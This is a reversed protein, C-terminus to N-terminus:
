GLSMFRAQAFLGQLAPTRHLEPAAVPARHDYMEKLLVLILARTAEPVANRAGYGAVYTVTVAQEIARTAPWSVGYAREIRGKRTAVGANLVRYNAAAWTQSAGEGDLYAVSTVSILPPLPLDFTPARAPFADLTYVLTQTVLARNLLGEPGDLHSVVARLYAMIDADESTGTVRLHAKAQDLTLPLEAPAAIRKLAM